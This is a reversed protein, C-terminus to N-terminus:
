RWFSRRRRKVPAKMGFASYVIKGLARVIANVITRDM